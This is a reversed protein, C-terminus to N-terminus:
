LPYNYKKIQPFEDLLKANSEKYYDSINRCLDEGFYDTPVYKSQHKISLTNLIRRKVSQIIEKLRNPKIYFILRNVIRVFTIEKPSLKRNIRKSFDIKQTCSFSFYKLFRGVFLPTNEAFDEYLFVHVNDKGFVERYNEILEYYNHINRKREAEPKVFYVYPKLFGGWKIYQSYNSSYKSLQNRIFLIIEADPFIKFLETPSNATENDTSLIREDSFLITQNVSSKVIERVKISALNIPHKTILDWTSNTDVYDINSIKPFLEKQLWTTATKHFGVHILVRKDQM